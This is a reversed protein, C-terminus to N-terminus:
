YLGVNTSAQKQGNRVLTRSEGDGGNLKIFLLKSLPSSQLVFHVAGCGGLSLLKQAEVIDYLTVQSFLEESPIYKYKRTVLIIKDKGLSQAM